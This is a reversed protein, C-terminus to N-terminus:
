YGLMYMNYLAMFDLGNTQRPPNWGELFGDEGTHLEQWRSSEWGPVNTCEFNPWYKEGGGWPWNDKFNKPAHCPGNTPAICLIEKFFAKGGVKEAVPKGEPFLLDNGLLLIEKRNKKILRIVRRNKKKNISLDRFGSTQKSYFEGNFGGSFISMSKFFSREWGNSKVRHDQLIANVSKLGYLTPRLDGGECESLRVARRCNERSMPLTIHKSDISSMIANAIKQMMEIPRYVQGDCTRVTATAPIYKKVFLLGYFLNMIQDHSLFFQSRVMYCLSDVDPCPSNPTPTLAGFAGGIADVHWAEDTPDHFIEELNQGADARILFGNYGSYDPIFQANEKVKVDWNRHCNNWWGVKTILAQEKRCLLGSGKRNAYARDIIHQAQMDLRRLAQLSLFIEELVKQQGKADGERAKLEYETALTVFWWGLESLTESGFELWNFKHNPTKHFDEEKPTWSIGFSNCDNDMRNNLRMGVVGAGNPSIWLNTAPLGYGQKEFRCQVSDKSLVLGIGDDICGQESRDIVIFHKYFRQKYFEYKRRLGDETCSQGFLSTTLLLVLFAGLLRINKKNQM